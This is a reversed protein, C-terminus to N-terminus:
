EQSVMRRSYVLESLFFFGAFSWGIMLTLWALELDALDFQIDMSNDQKFSAKRYAIGYKLHMYDEVWYSMLGAESFIMESAQLKPILANRVTIFYFFIQVGLAFKELIVYRSRTSGSEFNIPHLLNRIQIDSTIFGARINGNGIDVVKQPDVKIVQRLQPDKSIDFFSESHVYVTINNRILDDFTRPNPEYPYKSLLAVIKAEYACSLTFFFVTLSFIMMKELTSTQYFIHQEFGCIPYLILHNKFYNPFIVMILGCCLVILMLTFWVENSFPTILLQIITLRKGSPVAIHLSKPITSYMFYQEFTSLRLSNLNMDYMTRTDNIFIAKNFCIQQSQNLNCRLYHFQCSGNINSVTNQVWEILRGKRQRVSSDTEEDPNFVSVQMTYGSIDRTQDPFLQDLPVFGTTKLVSQNYLKASNFQNIINRIDFEFGEKLLVVIKTSLQFQNGVLLNLLWSSATRFDDCYIVVMTPRQTTPGTVAISYTQKPFTSLQPSSLIADIITKQTDDKVINYFWCEFAGVYDSAFYNIVATTYALVETNFDDITKDCQSKSFVLLLTLLLREMTLIPLM